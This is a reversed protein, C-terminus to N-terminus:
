LGSWEGDEILQWLSRSAFFFFFFNVNVLFIMHKIVARAWYAASDHNYKQPPLFGMVMLGNKKNKRKVVDKCM